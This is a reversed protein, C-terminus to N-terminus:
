VAHRRGAAKVSSRPKESISTSAAINIRVDPNSGSAANNATATCRIAADVGINIARSFARSAISLTWAARSM